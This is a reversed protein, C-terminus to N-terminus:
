MVGSNDTDTQGNNTSNTPVFRAIILKSEATSIDLDISKDTSFPTDTDAYYWGAFTYGTYCFVSLHIYSDGETYGNIRAEGGGISAVAFNELLSNAFVATITTDATINELTLPNATSTTINGGGRDIQWYAFANGGSAIAYINTLNSGHTQTTNISTNSTNTLSNNYLVNGITSDNTTISVNYQKLKFYAVITTNATINQITYPNSRIPNGTDNNLIFYDFEYTENIPTATVEYSGGYIVTTNATISGNGDTSTTVSYTRLEFVATYSTDANITVRLPNTANDAQGDGNTDWGVFRYSANTETATFTVSTGPAVSNYNASANGAGAPSIATTVNYRVLNQLATLSIHCAPRIGARTNSVSYEGELYLWNFSYMDTSDWYVSRLFCNSMYNGSTIPANDYGRMTSNLEWLGYYKSSDRMDSYSIYQSSTNAVEYVSPLWFKDNNCCIANLSNQRAYYSNPQSSQWSVASSPTVIFNDIIPYSTSLTSYVALTEDRIESTEYYVNSMSYDGNSEVYPETMWVTIYDGTRYVVQWYIPVIENWLINEAEGMQFIIPNSNNMDYASMTGSVAGVGGGIRNLLTNYTTINLANNGNLLNGISVSSEDGQYAESKNVENLIIATIGGALASLLLIISITISIIKAKLTVM